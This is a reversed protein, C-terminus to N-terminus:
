PVDKGYIDPEILDFEFYYIYPDNRLEDEHNNYYHQFLANRATAEDDIRLSLAYSLKIPKDTPKFGMLEAEENTVDLLSKVQINKLHLFTRAYERKRSVRWPLKTVLGDSNTYTIEPCNDRRYLVYHPLGYKSLDIIKEPLYLWEYDILKTGKFELKGSPYKMYVKGDEYQIGLPWEGKRPVFGGSKDKIEGIMAYDIITKEKRNPKFPFYWAKMEGSLISEVVDQSVSLSMATDRYDNVLSMMPQKSDM